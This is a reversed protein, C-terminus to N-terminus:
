EVLCKKMDRDRFKERSYGDGGIDIEKGMEMKRAMKMERAIVMERALEM